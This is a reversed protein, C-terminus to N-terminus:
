KEKEIAKVITRLSCAGMLVFKDMGVSAFEGLTAGISTRILLMIARSM